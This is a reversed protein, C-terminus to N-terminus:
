STRNCITKKATPFTIAKEMTEFGIFSVVFTQKGNPINNIIAIGDLNTEAGITTNKVYVSAGVIPEKEDSIVKFEVSNQATIKIASLMLVVAIVINKLM